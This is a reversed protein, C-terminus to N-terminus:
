RTPPKRKFLRKIPFWLFGFVALLLAGLLAFLAGMAALGSGPGVYADARGSLLVAWAAGYIIGFSMRGMILRKM